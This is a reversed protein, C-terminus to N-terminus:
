EYYSLLKKLIGNLSKRDDASLCRIFKDAVEFREHIISDILDFGEATLVVHVGRRDDTNIERDVLGKKVLKDIRNTMAGSTLLAAECLEGVSLKYPDGARRLVALVDFEPNILGHSKLFAGMAKEAFKNAIMLRGYIEMSESELEPREKSWQESMLGIRDM